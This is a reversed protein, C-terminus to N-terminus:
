SGALLMAVVPVVVFVGIVFLLGLAARRSRPNRLDVRSLRNTPGAIPDDFGFANHLDPARDPNTLEPEM